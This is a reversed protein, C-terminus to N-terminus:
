TTGRIGGEKWASWPMGGPNGSTICFRVDEKVQADKLLEKKIKDFVRTALDQVVQESFANTNLGLLYQTSDTDLVQIGRWRIFIRKDMFLHHGVKDIIEQISVNAGVTVSFKINKRSNPGNFNNFAYKNELELYSEWGLSHEPYHIKDYIHQLKKNDRNKPLIAFGTKIGEKDYAKNRTFDLLYNLQGEFM